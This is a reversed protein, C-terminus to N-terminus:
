LNPQICSCPSMDCERVLQQLPSNLSNLKYVLDTQKNHYIHQLGVGVIPAHNQWCYQLKTTTLHWRFPLHDIKVHDFDPYEYHKSLKINLLPLLTTLRKFTNKSWVNGCKTQISKLVFIAVHVFVHIESCQFWLLKPTLVAQSVKGIPKHKADQKERVFM